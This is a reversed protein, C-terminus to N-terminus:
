CDTYKDPMLHHTLGAAYLAKILIRELMPVPVANGIIGHFQQASILNQWGRIRWPDVGQLRVMEDTNMERQLHTLWHGHSMARTRTLCPSYGIAYNTRSSAHDVVILMTLPGVGLQITAALTALVHKRKTKSSKPPLRGPFPLLDGAPVADLFEALDRMPAVSPWTIPAQQVTRLIGVIFTRPRNQPLTGYARCNMSKYEVTYLYNGTDGKLGSLLELIHRFTAAFRGKTINEVNELMFLLPKRTMIYVIIYLIIIGRGNADSLGARSGAASWCQCPFGAMFFQVPEAYILFPETTVDDYYDAPTHLADALKQVSKDNDCSFIHTYAVQLKELAFIESNWGSCASGVTIPSRTDWATATGKTYSLLTSTHLQTLATLLGMFVPSPM